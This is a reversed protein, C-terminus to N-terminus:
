ECEIVKCFTVADRAKTANIQASARFGTKLFSTWLNEVKKATEQSVDFEFLPAAMTWFFDQDYFNLGFKSFEAEQGFPCGMMSGLRPKMALDEDAITTKAMIINQWPKLPIDANVLSPDFSIWEKGDFYEVIRHMEYKKPITPIVAIIRSPVKKARMLACALNANSTCIMNNGSRLIGLADLSKPQSQPNMNMVLKQINFAYDRVSRSKQWLKEALTAIESDESQVCLSPKLFEIPPTSNLILPKSYILVASSWNIIVEQNKEAKIRISVAQNVGDYNQILAQQLAGRPTTELSYFVPVQSDAMQPLSILVDYSGASQAKLHVGGMLGVLGTGNMRGHTKNKEIESLTAIIGCDPSPNLLVGSDVDWAPEIQYCCHGAIIMLVLFSIKSQYKTM